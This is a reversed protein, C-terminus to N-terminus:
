GQGKAPEQEEKAPEEIESEAKKVDLRLDKVNLQVYFWDEDFLISTLEFTPYVCLNSNSEIDKILEDSINCKINVANEEINPCLYSRFMVDFKTREFKSEFWQEHIDYLKNSLHKHLANFFRLDNKNQIDDSIVRFTSELAQRLKEKLNVEKNSM